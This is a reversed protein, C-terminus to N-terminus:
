GTRFRKAFAEISIPLDTMRGLPQMRFIRVKCDDLCEKLHQIDARAEVIEGNKSQEHHEHNTLMAQLADRQRAATKLDTEACRAQEKLNGNMEDARKLESKLNLDSDGIQAPPNHEVTRAPSRSPSQYDESQSTVAPISLPDGQADHTAGQCPRTPASGSRIRRGANDYDVRSHRM